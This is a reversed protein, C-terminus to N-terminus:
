AIVIDVRNKLVAFCIDPDSGIATQIAEAYRVQHRDNEGEFEVLWNPNGSVDQTVHDPNAPSASIFTM